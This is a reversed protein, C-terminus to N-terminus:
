NTREDSNNKPNYSVPERRAFPSGSEDIWIFGGFEDFYGAYPGQPRQPNRSRLTALPVDSIHPLSKATKIGVKSDPFGPFPQNIKKNVSPTRIKTDAVIKKKTTNYYESPRGLSGLALSELKEPSM